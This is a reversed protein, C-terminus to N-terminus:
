KYKWKRLGKGQMNEGDIGYLTPFAFCLIYIKVNEKLM